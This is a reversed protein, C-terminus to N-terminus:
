ENVHDSLDAILLADFLAMEELPLLEDSVGRQSMFPIVKGREENAPWKVTPTPRLLTSFEIVQAMSLEGTRKAM